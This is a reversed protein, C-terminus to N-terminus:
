RRVGKEPTLVLSIDIVRLSAGSTDDVRKRLVLRAFQTSPCRVDVRCDFPQDPVWLHVDDEAAGGDAQWQGISDDGADPQWFYGSVPSKFERPWPTVTTVYEQSATAAPADQQNIAEFPALEPLLALQVKNTDASGGAIRSNFTDDRTAYMRMRVQRYIRPAADGMHLRKTIAIMEFPLEAYVPSSAVFTLKEDPANERDMVGISMHSATEDPNTRTAANYELYGQAFLKEPERSSSMLSYMGAIASGVTDAPAGETGSDYAGAGTWLWCRGTPYHICIAIDNLETGSGGKLAVVYVDDSAIVAASAHKLVNHAVIHPMHLDEGQITWGRPLGVPAERGRFMKDLPKSMRKPLGSGDWAYIGDQATWMLLGDRTQVITRHAACGVGMVKVVKAPPADTIYMETDTFVVLQKRFSALGTVKRLSPMASFNVARLCRPLFPDSFYIFRSDVRIKMKDTSLKVGDKTQDDTAFIATGDTDIAIDTTLWVDDDFGAYVLRGNHEVVMSAGYFNTIYAFQDQDSPNKYFSGGADTIEKDHEAWRWLTGGNCFYVFVGFQTFTYPRNPRDNSRNDSTLVTLGDGINASHATTTWVGASVIQSLGGSNDNPVACAIIYDSGSSSSYLHAGLPFYEEWALTKWEDPVYRDTADDDAEVQWTEPSRLIRWGKRAELLDRSLDCNLLLDFEVSKQRAPETEMGGFVPLVQSETDAM